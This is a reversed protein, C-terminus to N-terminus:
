WRMKKFRHKVMAKEHVRDYHIPIKYKELGRKLCHERIVKEYNGNFDDKLQIKACVVNGILDHKFGYVTIDDVGDMQLIVNEVEQPSLKLGGVNIIESDRGIIKFYDGKVEVKDGTVFWGDKTLPSEERNLYGLISSKAKVHLIGDVVKTKYGEGGIKVWLSDNSKSESRLVGIESSGYVQQFKVKPFIENLRKLIIEPMPETGYSIIKLSSLDFDKYAGSLLLLKLFTPSTPLLEVKYKEILECIHKPSREKALVLTGVNSLTYFMTNLGGMHDFLLFPITTLTRKRVKFKDLLPVFDHVIGKPEGTSGSTFLVLGPHERGVDLEQYLEHLSTSDSDYSRFWNGAVICEYDVEAIESFKDVKVRYLSRDFPVVINNNKILALMLAITDLSYDSYISVVQGSCIGSGRIFGSYFICRDMLQKYTIKVGDQIIAIKDKNENFIKFLFSVQNIM